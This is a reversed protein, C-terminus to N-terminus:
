NVTGAVCVTLRHVTGSIATISLDLQDVNVSLTPTGSLNATTWGSTASCATSQTVATITGSNNKNVVMTASTGADIQCKAATITINGIMDLFYSKQSDNASLVPATPNDAGAVYCITRANNLSQTSGNVGVKVVNNTSDYAITGSATPAANAIVPVKFANASTDASMDLTSTGSFALSAGTGVTMAATSNTGTTVGGFGVNAATTATTSTGATTASTATAANGTISIGATGASINAATLNTLGSGNGSHTGAFSNSASSFTKAGTITQTSTLDVYTGSLSPIDAAVLSRFTPAGAAGNPGAFVSNAAQSTLSFTLAPTTTSTAVSTTFLPALNGSGFNTVTGAGAGPFTQGSAFTIIGTSGAISLGNSAPTCPASNCFQFAWNPTTGDQAIIRFLHVTNGINTAEMDLPFSVKQAGSASVPILIGGTGVGTNGMINMGTFTNAQDARAYNASTVGGLNTANITGTGTTTLSGGTGVVLAAANTSATVGSFPVASASSATTATAASTATTATAANGTINIGATGASINAATLNTLGAGSGTFANGVNNFTLAGTYTGSLQTGGVSGGLDSFQAQAGATVRGKADTTVKSYTGATGVLALTTATSGSTAVDGTLDGTKIASSGNGVILQNATLGTGTVTGAAIDTTFALSKLGGASQFQLHGDGGTLWVDGTAPTTPTVGTNPFNLSASTTASAPLTQKGGTFLNAQNNYVLNSTASNTGSLQAFSYDNAQPAVPGNRGNFSVVGSNAITFSGGLSSTGTVGIGTGAVVGINSNQLM